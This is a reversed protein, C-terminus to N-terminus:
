TSQERNLNEESNAMSSERSAINEKTRNYNYSIIQIFYPSTLSHDYCHWKVKAFVSKLPFFFFGKVRLNEKIDNPTLYNIAKTSLNAPKSIQINLRESEM